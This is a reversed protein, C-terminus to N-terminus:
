RAAALGHQADGSASDQIPSSHQGALVGTLYLDLGEERGGTQYVPSAVGARCPLRGIVSRIVVEAAKTRPQNFRRPLGVLRLLM